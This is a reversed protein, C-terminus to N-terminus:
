EDKEHSLIIRQHWRALERGIRHPHDEQLFHYGRGVYLTHLNKMHNRCWEVAEANLVAGPEAYLLLKPITTTQLFTSYHSILRYTEVPRGNIPIERPWMLMPKRSAIKRFPAKYHMKEERNLKRIILGPMFINLFANLGYIMIEGLIPTRLLRFGLIHPPKMGKWSWPKVMAELFALGRIKEPHRCAYHFGLASGWDHVVLTFPNIGLKEIFTELYHNHDTFRYPIAPQDSAGMGMLDPAICRARPLLHPLINRWLYSSTPNGHLFLVPPGKGEDVYQMRADGILMSKMQFPFDAQITENM